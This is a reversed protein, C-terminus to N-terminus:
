KALLKRAEAALIDDSDMQIVKELEERGKDEELHERLRLDAAYFLGRRRIKKDQEISVGKEYLDIAIQPLKKKAAEAGWSMWMMGPMTFFYHPYLMSEVTKEITLTDLPNERLLQGFSKSLIQSAHEYEAKNALDLAEKLDERTRVKPNVAVEETTVAKKSKVSGGTLRPVKFGLLAGLGFFAVELIAVWGYLNPNANWNTLIDAALILIAGATSVKSVENKPGFAAIGLLMALSLSMGMYPMDAYREFYSLSLTGMFVFGAFITGIALFLSSQLYGWRKELVKMAFLFGVAFIFFSFAGPFLFWCTFLAAVSSDEPIFFLQYEPINKTYGQIYRKLEQRYLKEDPAVENVAYSKKGTTEWWAQFDEKMQAIRKEPILTPNEARFKKLHAELEEEYIKETPEVGVDKFKQAGENEWYKEFDAVAARERSWEAIEPAYQIKLNLVGLVLVFLICITLPSKCYALFRAM